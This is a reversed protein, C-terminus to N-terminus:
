VMHWGIRVKLFLGLSVPLGRGVVPDDRQAFSVRQIYGERGAALPGQM